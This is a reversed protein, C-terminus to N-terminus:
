SLGQGNPRSLFYHTHDSFVVIVIASCRPLAVPCKCYCLIWLLLAVLERKRTLIIAFRSLVYLLAYWFLSWGLVGVFLPVHM